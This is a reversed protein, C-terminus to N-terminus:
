ILKGNLNILAFFYSGAGKTKDIIWLVILSDICEYSNITNEIIHSHKKLIMGNEKNLEYLDNKVFGVNNMPHNNDFLYLTDSYIFLKNAFYDKYIKRYKVKADKFVVLVTTGKIPNGGVFYYQGSSDIDFGDISYDRMENNTNYPVGNLNNLPIIVQKKIIQSTSYGVILSFSLILIIKLKGSGMGLCNITYPPTVGHILGINEINIKGEKDILM